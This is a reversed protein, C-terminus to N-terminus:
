DDYNDYNQGSIIIIIVILPIFQRANHLNTELIFGIISKPYSSIM